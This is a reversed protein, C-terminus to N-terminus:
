DGSTVVGYYNKESPNANYNPIINGPNVQSLANEGQGALQHAYNAGASYESNADALCVGTAGILTGLLLAALTKSM